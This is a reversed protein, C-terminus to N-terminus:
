HAVRSRGAILARRTIERGASGVNRVLPRRHKVAWPGIGPLCAARDAASLDARRVARVYEAGIRWRPLTIAGARSPDFFTTREKPTKFQRMSRGAFDRRYTLYEEVELFRGHLALEALLPNDSSPYGGHLATRRLAASRIVGHAPLCELENLVVDRFREVSGAASARGTLPWRKIEDGYEDIYVVGTSCLAADPADDLRTVCSKVMGPLRSDDAANWMFYEASSAEFVRNFNWALGRNTDSRLVRVRRDQSAFAQSIEVTADTSANDAIILEVDAFDQTLVGEIAHALFREGNFVPMGIGVRAQAM